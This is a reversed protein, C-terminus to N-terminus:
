HSGMPWRGTRCCLSNRVHDIRDAMLWAYEGMFLLAPSDVMPSCPSHLSVTHSHDSPRDYLPIRVSHNPSWFWSGRSLRLIRLRCFVIQHQREVSLVFVLAGPFDGRRTCGLCDLNRTLRECAVRSLVSNGRAM